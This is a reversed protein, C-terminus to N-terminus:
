LSCFVGTKGWAKIGYKPVFRPAADGAPKEPQLRHSASRLHSM